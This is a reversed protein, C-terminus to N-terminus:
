ARRRRAVLALGLVAAFAGTSGTQTCGGGGGGGEEDERDGEGEGEAAEGEGEGGEGEGEGEGEAGPLCDPAAGAGAGYLGAAHIPGDPATDSCGGFAGGCDMIFPATLVGEDLEGDENADEGADLTGNGNDDESLGLCLVLLDGDCGVTFPAECAFATAVCTEGIAGATDVTTTCANGDSCTSSFAFQDNTADADLRFGVGACPDDAGALCTPGSEACIGTGTTDECGFPACTGNPVQPAGGGEPPFTCDVSAEVPEAPTTQDDCVGISTADRCVNEFVDPDCADGDAAYAAPACLAAAVILTKKLM